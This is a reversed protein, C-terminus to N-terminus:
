VVRTSAYPDVFKEEPDPLTDAPRDEPEIPPDVHDKLFSDERGWSAARLLHDYRANFGRRVHERERPDRIMGLRAEFVRKVEPAAKSWWAMTRKVDGPGREQDEGALASNQYQDYLSTYTRWHRGTGYDYSMANDIALPRGRAMMLNGPHRDTNQSLFDMVAIRRLDERATASVRFSQEHDAEPDLHVALMPVPGASGRAFVVSVKQHLRGIGAAHYLAQNTMESWGLKPHRTGYQRHDEHYPKLLFSHQAGKMVVKPSVGTVGESRDEVTNDPHALSARLDDFVARHQKREWSPEAHHDTPPAQPDHPHTKGHMADVEPAPVAKALGVGLGTAWARNVSFDALESSAAAQLASLRDLSPQPDVGYRALALALRARDVSGLWSRLSREGDVTARPLGALREGPPLRAWGEPAWVRLYYPTFSNPDNAPDFGRGALASGQDILQVPRDESSLVNRSHRDTQGLVWDAAALMHLTGDGLLPLLALRLGAQDDRFRRYMPAFGAAESLWEVAAYQRGDVLVLDGRPAYAGLGMGDLAHWFAAERQSQTATEDRAGAAPSQRGSGPKLLLARGTEPDDALVAGAAHKGGRLSVPHTRGAKVARAIAGAAERAEPAGPAVQASEKLGEASDDVVAESKRVGEVAALGRLALRNEETPELGAASLAAAEDDGEHLVAHPRHSPDDHLGGERLLRAAEMLSDVGLSGRPFEPEEEHWADFMQHHALRELLSQASPPSPIFAWPARDQAWRFLDDDTALEHGEGTYLNTIRYM